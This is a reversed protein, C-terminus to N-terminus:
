NEPRLYFPFSVEATLGVPPEPFSWSALRQRICNEVTPSGLTSSKVRVNRAVGQAVIEWSIVVKGELREGKELKNLERNYCGRIEHLYHRVRRRVAERDITGVFDAEADGAEVAVSTKDGFGD